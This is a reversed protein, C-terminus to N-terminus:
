SYWPTHGFRNSHGHYIRRLGRVQRASLNVSDGFPGFRAEVQGVDGLLVSLHM